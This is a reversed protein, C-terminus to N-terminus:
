VTYASIEPFFRIQSHRLPISDRKVIGAFIVPQYFGSKVEDEVGVKGFVAKKYIGV